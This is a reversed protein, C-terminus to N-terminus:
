YQVAATRANDYLLVLFSQRVLQVQKKILRIMKEFVILKKLNKICYIGSLAKVTVIQPLVIAGTM